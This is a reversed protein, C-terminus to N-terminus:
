DREREREREREKEFQLSVLFIRRKSIFRTFHFRPKNPNTIM